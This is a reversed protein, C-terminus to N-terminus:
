ADGVPIRAGNIVSAGDSFLWRIVASVEEPASGRDKGGSELAQGAPRISRVLVLNATVGTQAVERAVTAMLTEQAAKAVAYPGSRAKPAAAVPSSVAVIRGWGAAIMEPLAARALNVTTWLHQDLMNAFEVPDVDTVSAGGTWGGVLHAVADIRAFRQGVARIAGRAADADRLDAPVVLARQEDLGLESRLAELRARDRGVLGLRLGDSALDRAVVSALRGAAGTVLAM